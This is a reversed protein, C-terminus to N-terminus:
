KSVNLKIMLNKYNRNLDSINRELEFIADNIQNLRQSKLTETNNISNVNNQFKSEDYININNEFNTPSKLFNSNITNM